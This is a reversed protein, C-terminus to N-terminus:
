VTPTEIQRFQRSLWYILGVILVLETIMWPHTLAGLTTQGPLWPLRYLYLKLGLPMVANLFAPVGFSIVVAAIFFLLRHTLKKYLIAMMVAALIIELFGGFLFVKADGM